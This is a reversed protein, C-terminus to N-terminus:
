AELLCWGLDNVYKQNDPELELARRSAAIAEDHLNQHGACCGVGQHFVAVRPYKAGAARYLDLGDGYAKMQILFDGAKDIITCIDAPEDPLTLLSLFYRKGRARKKRQYEISGMTLIAPAYSPDWRLAQELESVSGRIDGIASRFISGAYAAEAQFRNPVKGERNKSKVKERM